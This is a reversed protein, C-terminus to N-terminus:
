AGNESLARGLYASETCSGCLEENEVLKKKKDVFLGYPKDVTCYITQFLWYLCRSIWNLLLIM